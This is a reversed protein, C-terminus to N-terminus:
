DLSQLTKLYDRPTIGKEKKFASIFASRSTFGADQALAELTMQQNEVAHEVFYEVRYHNIWSTFNMKFHRNIMPSLQYVPIGTQNSLDQITFGQKRFPKEKEMIGILIVLEAPTEHVVDPSQDSNIEEALIEEAVPEVKEETIHGSSSQNPSLEPEPNEAVV